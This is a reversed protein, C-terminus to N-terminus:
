WFMSMMSAVARSYMDDQGAVVDVLHVVLEHQALVDVGAGVHGIPQRSTGRMSAVPKPTM